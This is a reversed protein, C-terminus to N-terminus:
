RVSTSEGRMIWRISSRDSSQRCSSSRMSVIVRSMVAKARAPHPSGAASPYGPHRAHDGGAGHHRRDSGSGGEGFAAVKGSPEPQHRLLDRGAIARDQAAEGLTPVAVQAGQEDAARLSSRCCGACSASVDSRGSAAPLPGEAADSHAPQRRPWCARACRRSRTTGRFRSHRPTNGGPHRLGARAAPTEAISNGGLNALLIHCSPHVTARRM